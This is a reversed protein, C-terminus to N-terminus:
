RSKSEVGVDALGESFHGAMDFKPEIVITGTRDIYGYKGDIEVYSLEDSFYIQIDDFYPRNVRKGTRDIYGWDGERRYGWKYDLNMIRCLGNSFGYASDFRPEIVIQGTKNIVGKKDAIEVVALGESFKDADQFQPDIVIKGTKDIYGWKSDLEVASLGESFRYSRDFKMEIVVQGTRDIYGYKGDVEVCALGEQFDSAGDFNPKIVFQGTKDVYGFKNGIRVWSLGESFDDAGDFQPEIVINGTMDIYGWKNNIVIGAMGEHFSDSSDFQPKIIVTGSKNVYGWKGNVKIKALGESFAYAYGFQPEIVIQGSKDIYGYKRNEHSHMDSYWNKDSYWVWNFYMYRQGISILSYQNGRHNLPMSIQFFDNTTEIFFHAASALLIFGLWLISRHIKKQIVFIITLISLLFLIITPVAHLLMPWDIHKYGGEWVFLPFYLGYTIWIKIAIAFHLLCLCVIVGVFWRLTKKRQEPHM